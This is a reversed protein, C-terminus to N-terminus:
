KNLVADMLNLPCEYITFEKIFILKEKNADPYRICGDKEKHILFTDIAENHWYYIYANSCKEGIYVNNVFIIDYRNVFKFDAGFGLKALEQTNIGYVYGGSFKNAFLLLSMDDSFSYRELERLFPAIEKEKGNINCYLKGNKVLCSEKKPYSKAMKSPSYIDIEKLIGRNYFTEFQLNSISVQKVSSSVVRSYYMQKIKKNHLEYLFIGNGGEGVIILNNSIHEDFIAREPKINHPLSIPLVNCLGDAFLSIPEYTFICLAYFVVFALKIM